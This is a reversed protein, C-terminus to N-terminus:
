KVGLKIWGKFYAWITPHYYLKSESAGGMTQIGNDFYDNIVKKLLKTGEGLQQISYTTFNDKITPKIKAQAVIGGTDIGTDILHVTVGCNELDRQLLAWYGGHVGRYKPTIGAHTNLMPCGAAQIVKGSLIRTGNVIILEPKLHKILQVTEEDNVSNVHYAHDKQIESEDLAYKRVLENKRRKSNLILFKIVLGQFLLQGFVKWIGMRKVRRKLFISLNEKKELIVQDLGFNQRLYNYVVRTSFSYNGLLLIKRTKEPIIGMFEGMTKCQFGYNTNLLRYHALIKELLAINETQNIGFNHPHWWLHFTRGNKAAYTMAGKIRRLKIKDLFALNPHYPRLLRSSPVNIPTSNLIQGDAYVHYGFINFYADALRLIRKFLSDNKGSGHDFVWSKENGRFVQIGLESCIGLYEENYQNRPFVISILDIGKKMSVEKWSLLDAKFQELTQGEELCYFHSFTHTCIENEPYKQILDVLSAGYHYPDEKESEGIDDLYGAYPSLSLDTYTPLSSPLLRKLQDKNDLFLFGVTAVTARVKFKRFTKLIKPLAKRAGLINAGYSGINKKDHVGWMLEFDISIVFKGKREM